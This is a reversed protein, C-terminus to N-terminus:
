RRLARVVDDTIRRVLAETAADSVAAHAPRWGSRAELEADSLGYRPDPLDLSQKIALLARLKPAPILPSQSSVQRAVLVTRCYTDLIEMKFYAEEISHAWSVVGHNGMLVTNHQDVLAAVSRSMELTGPTGYPAVPVEGCFVEMEPILCTPPSVGAVAFGTAYPPHAHVCAVAKPQAKYIELHMLVESTRKKDGAKQVGEMDVLCLDAPKMFGKSSLTPTCLVLDAAVRASINGGNGDVYARQWLRRGIDCIEDKRTALEPSAFFAEIQNPAVHPWPTTAAPLSSM